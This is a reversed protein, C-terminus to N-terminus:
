RASAGRVRRPGRLRPCRGRRSRAPRRRRGGWRGRSGRRGPRRRTRGVSWVRSAPGGRPWGSLVREARWARGRATPSPHNERSRVRRQRCAGVGESSLSPASARCGAARRRASLAAEHGHPLGPVLTGGTVRLREPPRLAAASGRWARRLPFARGPRGGQRRRPPRCRRARASRPRSCGNRGYGTAVGQPRSPPPAGAATSPPSPMGSGRHEASLAAYGPLEGHARRQDAPGGM